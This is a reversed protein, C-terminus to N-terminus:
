KKRRPAPAKPKFGPLARKMFEDFLPVSFHVMGYQGGYAMGKAIIQARVPSAQPATKGLVKAVEGSKHPGPGLEAMARLYLQESHTLQDFRVRFFGKDLSEITRPEATVVDAKTIPSKRAANWARFGWEQLFYPYGQSKAIIYDIAAQNISAGTKVIPDRIAKGAEGTSLAGIEVFTFLRESYSKAAGALGLLQPLGAGFLGLPLSRQNVRHIATILASLEEESLYQMEDLALVVGSGAAKATEGVTALLDAVDIELDGSDAVGKAAGKVEIGIGAVKVKFISAFSQLAAAAQRLAEKAQESASFKLLLQRVAPVLIETLKKHEPTELDVVVADRGRAIEGVERLLVTKGVGRLGYFVQGRIPRGRLGRGIAAEADALILERGVLEQPKTGAGPEFPNDEKTWPSRTYPSRFTIALKNLKDLKPNNPPNDLAFPERHEAEGTATVEQASVM